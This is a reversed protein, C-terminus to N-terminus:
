RRSFDLNAERNKQEEIPKFARLRMMLEDFDVQHADFEPGDVCVFKTEGGVTVRCAGCMGTGDVMISNLSALTPIKHKETTLAVFKMMIAPGVCIVLDVPEREIVQELGLTVVGKQGMTGDDTMVITEDAVEGIMDDMFILDKTRAGLIAIVKNGAEKMGKISPFLEAIGVGGGICVVTGYKKIETPKGLPGVIDTIEDGVDLHTIKWTSVGAAQIIVEILGEDPWTNACTVPIREGMEGVRFIIFNGPRSSRAILPAEITLAAVRESIQEKKVIKYMIPVFNTVRGGATSSETLYRSSAVRWPKTEVLDRLTEVERHLM